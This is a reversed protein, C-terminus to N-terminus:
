SSSSYYSLTGNFPVTVTSGATTTQIGSDASSTVWNGSYKVSTDKDDIKFVSGEPEQGAVPQYSLSDLWFVSNSSPFSPSVVLSHSSSTLNLSQCLLYNNEHQPTQSPPFSSIPVNDVLCTWQPADKGDTDITGYVQITSGECFV